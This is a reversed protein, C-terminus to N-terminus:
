LSATNEILVVKGKYKSFNIKKGDLDTAELAYFNGPAAMTSSARAIGHSLLTRAVGGSRAMLRLNAM